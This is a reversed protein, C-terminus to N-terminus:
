SIRSSLRNRRRSRGKTGTVVSARWAQRTTGFRARPMSGVPMSWSQTASIVGAKAPAPEIDSQGLDEDIKGHHDIGEAAADDAPGQLPVELRAEGQRGEVHSKRRPARCGVAEDVVGIATHLIGTAVVALSAACRMWGLM